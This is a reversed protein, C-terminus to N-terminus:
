YGADMLVRKIAGYQREAADMKEELQQANALIDQLMNKARELRAGDTCTTLLDALVFLDEELIYFCAAVDHIM